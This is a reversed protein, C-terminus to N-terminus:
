DPRGSFRGRRICWWSAPDSMDNSEVQDPTLNDTAPDRKKLTGCHFVYLRPSSAGPFQPFRPGAPSWQPPSHSPSSARGGHFRRLVSQSTCGDDNTM